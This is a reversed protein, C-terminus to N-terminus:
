TNGKIVYINYLQIYNKIPFERNLKKKILSKMTTHVPIDKKALQHGLFWVQDDSEVKFLKNGDTIALVTAEM